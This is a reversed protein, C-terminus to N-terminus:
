PNVPDERIELKIIFNGFIIDLLEILSSTLEM